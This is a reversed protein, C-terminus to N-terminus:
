RRKIKRDCVETPPVVSSSIGPPECIGTVGSFMQLYTLYSFAVEFNYNNCREPAKVKKAAGTQCFDHKGNASDKLWEIYILTKTINDESQISCFYHDTTYFGFQSRHSATKM